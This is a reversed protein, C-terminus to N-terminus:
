FQSHPHVEEVTLVDFQVATSDSALQRSGGLVPRSSGNVSSETLGVGADAPRAVGGAQGGTSHEGRHSRPCPRRRHGQHRGSAVACGGGACGQSERPAGGGDASSCHVASTDPQLGALHVRCPRLHMVNKRAMHNSVASLRAPQPGQLPGDSPARDKALKERVRQRRQAM